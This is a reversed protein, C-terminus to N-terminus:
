FANLSKLIKWILFLYNTGLFVTPVLVLAAFLYGLTIFIEGLLRSLLNKARPRSSRYIMVLIILIVETLILPKFKFSEILEVLARQVEPDGTLSQIFNLIKNIFEFAKYQAQDQDM